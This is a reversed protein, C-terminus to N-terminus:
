GSSSRLLGSKFERLTPMAALIVQNHAQCHYSEPTGHYDFVEFRLSASTQHNRISFIRKLTILLCNQFPWNTFAAGIVENGAKVEADIIAQLEPCIAELAQQEIVLEYVLPRATIKETRAFPRM